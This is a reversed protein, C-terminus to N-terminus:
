KQRKFAPSNTADLFSINVFYNKGKQVSPQLKLDKLTMRGRPTGSCPADHPRLREKQYMAWGNVVESRGNMEM